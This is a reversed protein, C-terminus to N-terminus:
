NAAVASGLASIVYADAGADLAYVATFYNVGSKVFADASAADSVDILQIAFIGDDSKTAGAYSEAAYKGAFYKAKITESTIEEDSVIVGYDSASTVKGIVTLKRDGVKDANAGAIIEADEVDPDFEGLGEKVGDIKIGGQYNPDESAAVLVAGAEIAQSTATVTGIPADKEAVALTVNSAITDFVVTVIGEAYEASAITAEGATVSVADFVMDANPSWAFAITKAETPIIKSGAPYTVTYGEIVADSATGATYGVKVASDLNTEKTNFEFTAGAATAKEQDIHVNAGAKTAYYTVNAGEDIGTVTVNVKVDETGVYSTTTAVNVASATVPFCVVLAIAAVLAIVKKAM